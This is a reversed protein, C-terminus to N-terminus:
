KHWELYLFTLNILRGQSRKGCFLIQMSAYLTKFKLKNKSANICVFDHIKVKNNYDNKENLKTQFDM